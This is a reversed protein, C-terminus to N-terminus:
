WSFSGFAAAGGPIPAVTVAPAKGWDAFFVLYAASGAIVAGGIGYLAGAAANKARVSSSLSDYRALDTESTGLGGMATADKQALVTCVVGGVLIAAGGGAGIWGWLPKLASRATARAEPPVQAGAAVNAAGPPVKAPKLAAEVGREAGAVVDVSGEFPEFGECEVRVRHSGPRVDVIVTRGRGMRLGDVLVVADPRDSSVKLKGDTVVATLVVNRAERVGQRAAVTLEAPAFGEVQVRVVHAGPALYLSFPTVANGDAGPGAGDVLIRAGAPESGVELLGREELLAQDLKAVQDEVVRKRQTWKENLASRNQEASDLFRRYTEVTFDIQGMQEYALAIGLLLRWTNEPDGKALALGQKFKKLAIVQRGQKLDDKAADYLGQVEDSPAAFATHNRASLVLCGLIAGLFAMRRAAHTM